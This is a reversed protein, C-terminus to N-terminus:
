VIASVYSNWKWICSFSFYKVVYNTHIRFRRSASHGFSNFQSSLRYHPLYTVSFNCVCRIKDYPWFGCSQSSKGPVRHHRRMMEKSNAEHTSLYCSTSFILSALDGSARSFTASSERETTDIVLYVATYPSVM